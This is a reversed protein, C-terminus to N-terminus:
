SFVSHLLSSVFGSLWVVGWPFVCWGIYKCFGYVLVFKKVFTVHKVYALKSSLDMTSFATFIAERPPMQSHVVVSLMLFKFFFVNCRLYITYYGPGDKM